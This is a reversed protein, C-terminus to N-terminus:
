TRSRMKPKQLIEVTETEKGTAGAWDLWSPKYTIVYRGVFSKGKFPNVVGCEPCVEGTRSPHYGRNFWHHINDAQKCNRCVLVEHYAGYTKKINKM